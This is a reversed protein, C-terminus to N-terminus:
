VLGLKEMTRWRDKIMVSTRNSFDYGKLIKAWSGKGFKKVGRRIWETEEDSWKQKKSDNLSANTSNRSTEEENWTDQEGAESSNWMPNTKRRIPAKSKNHETLVTVKKPPSGTKDRQDQSIDACESRAECESDEEMGLEKLTGLRKSSERVSGGSRGRKGERSKMNRPSSGPSRTRSFNTEYAEKFAADPNQERFLSKFEYRIALMSYTPYISAQSRVVEPPDSSAELIPSFSKSEPEPRKEPSLPEKSVNELNQAKRAATLLFPTCDDIQGEFLQFIKQKLTSFSFNQIMPHRPNKGQIIEQLESRLKKTSSHNTIYKRLIRSAKDFQEEKICVVVAAEKVMQKNTRLLEADLTFENQIMDLIRIASELPTETSDKEFVCNPDEGEEIRSLCQMIRLQRSTQDTTELPRQVLVSVIDRIEGFDKHRDSRFAEVACHFYYELVWRNVTQELETPQSVTQETEETIAAAVGKRTRSCGAM